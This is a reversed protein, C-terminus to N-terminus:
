KAQPYHSTVNIDLAQKVPKLEFYPDSKDTRLAALLRNYSVTM